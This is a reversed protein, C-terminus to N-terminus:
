STSLHDSRFAPMACLAFRGAGRSQGNRIKIPHNLRCLRDARGGNRDEASGDGKIKGVHTGALHWGPSSCCRDCVGLGSCKENKLKEKTSKRGEPRGLRTALSTFSHIVAGASVVLCGNMMLRPFRVRFGVNTGTVGLYPDVNSVVILRASCSLGSCDRPRGQAALGGSRNAKLM